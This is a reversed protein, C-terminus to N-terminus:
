LGGLDGYQLQTMFNSHDPVNIIINRIVELVEPQLLTEGMPCLGAPNKTGLLRQVRMNKYCRLVHAAEYKKGGLSLLTTLLQGFDFQCVLTM